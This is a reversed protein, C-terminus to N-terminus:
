QSSLFLDSTLAWIYLLYLLPLITYPGLVIDNVSRLSPRLILTLRAPALPVNGQLIIEKIKEIIVQM